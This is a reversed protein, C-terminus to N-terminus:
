KDTRIGAGVMVLGHPDNQIFLGLTYLDSGPPALLEKRVGEEVLVLGEPTEVLIGGGATAMNIKVEPTGSDWRWVENGVRVNFAILIAGRTAFGLEMEGLVMEDHLHGTYRPLLLKYALEGSETVRYVFEDYRRGERGSMETPSSRVSLLIGGGLGDPIIDGTPAIVRMASAISVHDQKSAEVLIDQHSGDPQIQWLVLQDDRSFNVKQPNVVSGDTCKAAEVTWHRQTFAAYANGDTNVFLGSTLVPLARIASRGSACLINEGSRQVNVEHEDSAPLKLKFKEAGTSGDWASVEASTGDLSQNILHLLNSGNVAYGKRVGEFKHRWSLIGAKGVVYLTYSDPRAVALVAGGSDEGCLLEVDGKSDPVTWKWMQMGRSTFGRVYAGNDDQDLTFLDPGDASPVAQLVAKQRGTSPVAWHVGRLWMGPALSWIKAEATLSTGELLAVIRVVGAAKSYLVAYGSEERIEALDTSDVSWSTAHYGKGAADLIQLPQTEGVQLNIAIPSIHM